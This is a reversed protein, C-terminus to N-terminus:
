PVTVWILQSTCRSTSYFRDDYIPSDVVVVIKRELGGVVSFEAAMVVDQTMSALDAVAKSDENRVITVPINVLRLGDIIGGAPTIVGAFPDKIYTVLLVDKFLLPDPSPVSTTDIDDVENQGVGLKVLEKAVQVGCQVCEGPSGESHGEGQHYVYRVPPGDAPMPADSVTREQYPSSYKKFVNTKQIERMVVPPFRLPQNLTFLELCEPPKYKRCHAAWLHLKPVKENLDDCLHRERYWGAEDAIVFLRGEEDVLKQLEELVRSKDTVLLLLRKADEEGAMQRVQHEIMYSAAQSALHASLVIVQFGAQLWQLAKLVLIITKGTGPPGFLFVRPEDQRLLNVQSPHLVLRHTYRAATLSVAQGETHLHYHLSERPENVCYVPVTSAPGAFRAVTLKYQSFSEDPGAALLVREFWETLRTMIEDTIDYSTEREPVDDALLCLDEPELSDKYPDLCTRMDQKLQPVRDFVEFLQSQQLNPLLLTKRVRPPQQLDKTLHKLVKEEKDLQKLGKRIRKETAKVEKETLSRGRFKDGISKLEGVLLGHTAHILLLDFEGRSLQENDFDAARPFLSAAINNLLESLYNDFGLQTLVFFRQQLADDAIARVCDLIRQTELDDEADSLAIGKQGRPRDKAPPHTTFVDQRAIAHTEYHLRNMHVNPVFYVRQNLEPYWDDVRKLWYNEYDKVKEM